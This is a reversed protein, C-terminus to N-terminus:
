GGTARDIAIGIATLADSVTGGFVVLWITTFATTIALILGYEVVGQGAAGIM